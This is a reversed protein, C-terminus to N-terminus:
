QKGGWVSIIVFIMGFASFAGASSSSGAQFVAPGPVDCAGSPFGCQQPCVKCSRPKPDAGQHQHSAIDGVLASSQFTGAGASHRHGMTRAM